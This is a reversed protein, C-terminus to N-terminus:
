GSKIGTCDIMTIKEQSYKNQKILKKQLAQVRSWCQALFSSGVVCFISMCMISFIRSNVTLLLVALNLIHSRYSCGHGKEEAKQPLRHFKWRLM